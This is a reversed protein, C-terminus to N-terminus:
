LLPALLARNIAIIVPPVLLPATVPALLLVPGLAFFILAAIVGASLPM